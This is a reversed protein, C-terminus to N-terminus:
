KITKMYAHFCARMFDSVTPFDLQFAALKAAKVDKAPWRVQLPARRGESQPRKSKPKVEPTAERVARPVPQVAAMDIICYNAGHLRLLGLGKDLGDFPLEVRQPM